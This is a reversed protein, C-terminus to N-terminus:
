EGTKNAAQLLKSLDFAYTTQTDSLVFLRNGQLNFRLFVVRGNVELHGLRKGSDLSYLTLEGPFNEVIIQNGQPNISAIRGFFRHRLIGDRISYVLVRGESDKLMLWDGESQGSGIEFSGKGTELLFTGITKQQFADVVEILYDQKMDGMAEAQAKLAPNEKLKDKAEDTNLRWYFMLRGSYSDFSYRPVFKEFDKTWIVKDTLWNKLEFTVGQRLQDEAKEEESLPFQTTKPDEKKGITEKIPHRIL